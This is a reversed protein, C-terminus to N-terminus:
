NGSGDLDPLAMVVIEKALFTGDAGREGQAVISDGVALDAVSDGAVAIVQTNADTRVTVSEGTVSDLTLTAGDIATITGWAAGLDGLADGLGPIGTLDTPLPIATTPASASPRAPTTTAPARATTTSPAAATTSSDDNGVFLLYGFGAVAALLVVIAGLAIWVGKGRKPEQPPPGYGQGELPPVEGYGGYQQTPYQQTPNTPPGYGHQNYPDQPNYSGQQGSDPQFYTPYEETPKYDGYAQYPDSTHHRAAPQDFRETPQDPQDGGPRKSWPDDPNSM